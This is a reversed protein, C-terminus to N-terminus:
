WVGEDGGLGRGRASCDTWAEWGAASGAAGVGWGAAEWGVAWVRQGAATGGCDRCGEKLGCVDM